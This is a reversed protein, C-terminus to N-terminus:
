PKIVTKHLFKHLARAVSGLSSPDDIYLFNIGAGELLRLIMFIIHLFIWQMTGFPADTLVGGARLTQM